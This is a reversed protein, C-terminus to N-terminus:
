LRLSSDHDCYQAPCVTHCGLAARVLRPPQVSKAVAHSREDNGYLQGRQEIGPTDIISVPIRRLSDDPTEVASVECYARVERADANRGGEETPSARVSSHDRASAQDRRREPERDGRNHQEDSELVLVFITQSIQFHLADFFAVVVLAGDFQEPPTNGDSATPTPYQFQDPNAVTSESLKQYKTSRGPDSLVMEKAQLCLCGPSSVPLLYHRRPVLEGQDMGHATREAAKCQWLLVSDQVRSLIEEVRNGLQYHGFDARNCSPSGM